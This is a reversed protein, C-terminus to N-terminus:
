QACRPHLVMYGYSMLGKQTIESQNQEGLLLCYESLDQLLKVLFQLLGKIILRGM